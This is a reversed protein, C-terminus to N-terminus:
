RMMSMYITKESYEFKVNAETEIRINLAVSIADPGTYEELKFLLETRNSWSFKGERSFFLKWKSVKDTSSGITFPFTPLNLSNQNTLVRFNEIKWNEIKEHNETEM